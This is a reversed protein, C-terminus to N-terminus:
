EGGALAATLIDRLREIAPSVHGAFQRMIYECDDEQLPDREFDDLRDILFAAADSVAEPKPPATFLPQYDGDSVGVYPTTFRVVGTLKHLWAVPEAVTDPAPEPPTAYLARCGESLGDGWGKAVFESCEVWKGDKLQQYADPRQGAATNPVPSAQLMARYIDEMNTADIDSPIEGIWTSEFAAKCMAETPERPVLVWDGRVAEISAPSSQLRLLRRYIVNSLGGLSLEDADVVKFWDVAMQVINDAQRRLFAEGSVAVGNTQDKTTM